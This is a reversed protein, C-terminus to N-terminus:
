FRCGGWNVYDVLFRKKEMYWIDYQHQVGEPIQTKLPSMLAVGDLTVCHVRLYCALLHVNRMNLSQPWSLLSLCLGSLSCRTLYVTIHPFPVRKSDTKNTSSWFLFILKKTINICIRLKGSWLFIFLLCSSKKEWAM